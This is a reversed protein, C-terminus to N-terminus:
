TSDSLAHGPREDVRAFSASSRKLSTRDPHARGDLRSPSSTLEDCVTCVVGVGPGGWTRDPRRSPLKGTCIRERAKARLVTEDPM